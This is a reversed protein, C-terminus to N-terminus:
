QLLLGCSGVHKADDAAGLEVQLRNQLADDIGRDPKAAGILCYDGPQVPVSVAECGAVTKIGFIEFDFLGSQDQRPWSGDNATGRHGARDGLNVISHHVRLVLHFFRAEIACIWEM